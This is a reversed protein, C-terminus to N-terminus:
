DSSSPKWWVAPEGLPMKLGVGSHSEWAITKAENALLCYGTRPAAPDDAIKRWGDSLDSPASM